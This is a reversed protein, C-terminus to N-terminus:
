IQGITVPEVTDKSQPPEDDDEEEEYPADGPPSEFNNGVHYDPQKEARQKALYEEQKAQFLEEGKLSNIHKQQAIRVARQKKIEALDHDNAGVIGSFAKANSQQAPLSPNSNSSNSSNTNQLNSARVNPSNYGPALVDDYDDDLKLVVNSVIKKKTPMRIVNGILEGNEATVQSLLIQVGQKSIYPLNSIPSFRSVPAMFTFTATACASGIARYWEDPLKFETLSFPALVTKTTDWVDVGDRGINLAGYGILKLEPLTSLIGRWENCNGFQYVYTKRLWTSVPQQSSNFTTTAKEMRGGFCISGYIPTYMIIDNQRWPEPYLALSAFEYDMVTGKSASTPLGTVRHSIIVTGKRPAYILSSTFVSHVNFGDDVSPVLIRYNGVMENDASWDGEHKIYAAWKNLSSVLMPIDGITKVQVDVPLGRRWCALSASIFFQMRKGFDDTMASYGKMGALLLTPADGKGAVQIMREHRAKTDALTGTNPPFSPAPIYGSRYWFCCPFGQSILIALISKPVAVREYVKEPIIPQGKENDRRSWNKGSGEWAQLFKLVIRTNLLHYIEPITRDLASRVFALAHVGTIANKAILSLGRWVEDSNLITCLDDIIVALNDHSVDSKAWVKSYAQANVNTIWEANKNQVLQAAFCAVAQVNSYHETEDYRIPIVANNRVQQEGTIPTFTV